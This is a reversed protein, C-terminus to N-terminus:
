SEAVVKWASEALGRYDSVSRGINSNILVAKGGSQEIRPLFDQEITKIQEPWWYYVTLPPKVPAVDALQNILRAYVGYTTYEFIMDGDAVADGWFKHHISEIYKQMDEVIRRQMPVPAHTWRKLPMHMPEINLFRMSHAPWEAMQADLDDETEYLHLKGEPTYFDEHVVRRVFFTDSDLCVIGDTNVVSPAALKLIQQVMWGHIPPRGKWYRLERRRAGWAIRRAELKATLIERTSLITLNRQFPLRKFLAIDEHDVIAVHPIEIGCREISERQLLFREVDHAYTPTIFTVQKM